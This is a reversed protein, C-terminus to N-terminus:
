QKVKLCTKDFKKMEKDSINGSRHLASALSHASKMISSKFSKKTNKKSM